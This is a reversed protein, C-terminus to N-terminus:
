AAGSDDKIAEGEGLAEGLQNHAEQAEKLFRLVFEISFCLLDAMKYMLEPGATTATYGEPSYIVTKKGMGAAWGLELHSSRGCPMVLVVVDADRLAEMDQAYGAEAIPHGLAQIYERHGWREWDPDIDAWHFGTNGESPNRFDYVTHGEQRLEQVVEPQWKNRWSSAVYINLPSNSGLNM